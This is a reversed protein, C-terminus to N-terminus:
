QGALQRPSKQQSPTNKNTCFYLVGAFCLLPSVKSYSLAISTLFGFFMPFVFDYSPSLTFPFNLFIFIERCFETQHIWVATSHPKVWNSIRCTFDTSKCSSLTCYGATRLYLWKSPFEHQWNDWWFARLHKHIGASPQGYAVLQNPLYKVFDIAIGFTEFYISTAAM